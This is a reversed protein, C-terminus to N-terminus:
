NLVPFLFMVPMRATITSTGDCNNIVSLIPAAPTTKPAPTVSNSLGSTCDGVTLTATVVTTTTVTIPNGTGGNSWTLGSTIVNGDGDKATLPVHVVM